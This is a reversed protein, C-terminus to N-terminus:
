RAAASWSLAAAVFVFTFPLTPVLVFGLRLAFALWTAFVCLVADLLMTVRAQKAPAAAAFSALWRAAANQLTSILPNDETGTSRAARGNIRSANPQVLIKQIPKTVHRAGATPQRSPQDGHYITRFA